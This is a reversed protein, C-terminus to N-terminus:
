TDGIFAMLKHNSQATRQKGGFLICVCFISCFLISLMFRPIRGVWIHMIEDLLDIGIGAFEASQENSVFWGNKGANRDNRNRALLVVNWAFSSTGELCRRFCCYFNSAFCVSFFVLSFFCMVMFIFDAM